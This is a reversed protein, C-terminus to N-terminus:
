IKLLANMLSSYAYSNKSYNFKEGLTIVAGSFSAGAFFGSNNSYVYIDDTFKIDSMKTYKKGFDGFSASIDGNITFKSNLIDNLIEDKLIFLVLSINDYGMQLGLSGGSMKVNEIRLIERENRIIMVGDGSMAGIVFGVKILKPFIIVAKAQDYLQKKPINPNEKIVTIYSNSANLLLENDAFLQTILLFIFMIKRISIERSLM